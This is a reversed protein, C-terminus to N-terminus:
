KFVSYPCLLTYRPWATFIECATNETYDANATLEPMVIFYSNWPFETSCVCVTAASRFLLFVIESRTLISNFMFCKEIIAHWLTRKTKNTLIYEDTSCHMCNCCKCVTARSIDSFQICTHPRERLNTGSVIHSKSQLPIEKAYLIRHFSTPACSQLWGIWLYLLVISTDSCRSRYILLAIHIHVKAKAISRCINFVLYSDTM